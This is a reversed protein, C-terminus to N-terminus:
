KYFHTVYSVIKFCALLVEALIKSGCPGDMYVKDIINHKDNSSTSETNTSRTNICKESFLKM